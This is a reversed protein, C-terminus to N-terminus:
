AYDIILINLKGPRHFEPEDKCLERFLRENADYLCMYTDRVGCLQKARLTWMLNSPCKNLFLPEVM